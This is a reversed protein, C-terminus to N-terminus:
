LLLIYVCMTALLAVIMSVRGRVEGNSTKTSAAGTGKLGLPAMSPSSVSLSTTSPVSSFSVPQTTAGNAIMLGSPGAWMTEGDITLSAGGLTLTRSGVIVNPSGQSDLEKFATLTSSGLALIAESSSAAGSVPHFPITRANNQDVIVLGSPGLSITEGDVVIPAGNLTLTSLGLIAVRGRDSLAPEESVTILSSGISVVAEQYGPVSQVPSFQATRISNGDIMVVGQSAASIVEGGITVPRGGVTLTSGGIEVIADAAGAYSARIATLIASGLTVIAESTDGIAPGSAITAMGITAIQPSGSAVVIPLSEGTSTPDLASIINGPLINSGSGINSFVHTAHHGSSGEVALGSPAVSMTQGDIVAAPGNLMLTTGQIAVAGAQNQAATVAKGGINLVVGKSASPANVAHTQGDIVVGASGLFKVIQSSITAASGPVLTSSGFVLNGDSDTGYLKSGVSIAPDSGQAPDVYTSAKTKQQPDSPPDSFHAPAAGNSDALSAGATKWTKSQQLADGPDSDAQSSVHNSPTPGSRLFSMIESDPNGPNSADQSTSPDESPVPRGSPNLPATRSSPNTSDDDSIPATNSIHSRDQSPDPSNSSHPGDSPAPDSHTYPDSSSTPDNSGSPDATQSPRPPPPQSGPTPSHSSKPPDRTATPLTTPEPLDASAYQTLAIPPDPLATIDLYCTAWRPDIDILQSPYSPVHNPWLDAFNM